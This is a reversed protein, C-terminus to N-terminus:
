DLTPPVIEGRSQAATNEYSGYFESNCDLWLVIRRFDEDSLQVGYHREDLYEMLKSARAGFQGAITRAGGHQGMNISGNTVHFYFGYDPALNTYSRTWGYEGEVTGALDLANEKRHCTVCHRDLVGQVLRVFNFPNSGDVGPRIKSPARQLAM